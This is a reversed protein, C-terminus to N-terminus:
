GKLRHSADDEEEPSPYPGTVDNIGGVVAVRAALPAVAGGREGPAIISIGATTGIHSRLGFCFRSSSLAPESVLVAPYSEQSATAIARQQDYTDM